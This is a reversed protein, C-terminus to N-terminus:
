SQEDDSPIDFALYTGKYALNFFEALRFKCFNLGQVSYIAALFLVEQLVDIILFVFLFLCLFPFLVVRAIKRIDEKGLM